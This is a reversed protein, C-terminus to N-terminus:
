APNKAATIPRGIVLYDAGLRVAEGPTMVRAQDDAAGWTPRIGPTVIIFDRGWAERIPVIEQPSAVVGDLRCLQALRAMRVVQEPISFANEGFVEQWQDDNMSTLVTVGVLLPTADPVATRAAKMMEEGGAIHVNLMWVDHRIASKVAEAVTNPIDHFKLDLFVLNGYSRVLQIAAPGEATFLQKGIKFIDASEATLDLIRRVSVLDPVDLAIILPNSMESGGISRHYFSCALGGVQICVWFKGWGFLFALLLHLSPPLGM